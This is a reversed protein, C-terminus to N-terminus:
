KREFESALGSREWMPIYAHDIKLEGTRTPIAVRENLSYGYQDIQDVVYVTFKIAAKKATEYDKYQMVPIFM